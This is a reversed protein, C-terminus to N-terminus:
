TRSSPLLTPSPAAQIAFRRSRCKRATYLTGDKRRNILEGQWVEGSLITKWLERYYAFDQCGSKLLQTNQGVVEEASYGTMRTFAPNIYKITASVDTIVIAEGIQGIATAVLALSANSLCNQGDNKATAGALQTGDLDGPRDLLSKRNLAVLEKTSVM